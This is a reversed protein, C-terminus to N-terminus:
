SHSLQFLSPTVIVDAWRSFGLILGIVIGLIAGCTYGVGVRYLSAFLNQYLEGSVIMDKATVLITSPAPLGTARAIQFLGKKKVRLKIIAKM